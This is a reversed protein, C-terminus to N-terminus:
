SQAPEAAAESRGDTADLLAPPAAAFLGARDGTLTSLMLRELPPLFRAIPLTLNRLLGMGPVGSQFAPTLWRSMFQTWGVLNKRAAVFANIAATLDDRHAGLAAAITLGDVLALNAGQGLQPSTGHAADGLLLLKGHRWDRVRVDRYIAFAVDAPSKVRAAFDAAEPWYRRIDAVWADLGAARWRAEHRAPLSWFLAADDAGGDAGAGIPLLGIMVRAGAYVQRLAGACAKDPDPVITWLAGWPYIPARAAPFYKERLRSHAGDAILILDFPGRSAGCITHVSGAAEDIREVEFDLVQTIPAACVAQYLAGFLVGRHVGLGFADRRLRAYELDLIVGGSPARGILRDVRASTDAVQEYLGLARLAAQGTPQLLLGAGIPRPTAFADFLSVAFGARALALAASLGAMGAGIVAIREIRM